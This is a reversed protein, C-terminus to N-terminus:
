FKCAHHSRNITYTNAIRSIQSSKDPVASIARTGRRSPITTRTADGSQQSGAPAGLAEASSAAGQSGSAGGHAGAAAGRSGRASADGRVCRRKQEAHRGHASPSAAGRSGHSVEGSEWRRMQIAQKGHKRSSTTMNLTQNTKHSIRKRKM